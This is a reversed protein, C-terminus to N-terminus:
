HGLIFPHRLAEAPKMRSQPDWDLCRLIFDFFYFDKPGLAEELAQLKPYNAYEEGMQELFAAKVTGILTSKRTAQALVHEPPIGLLQVMYVFLEDENEAPFLPYGSSLECLLCGLSWMDIAMTYPIGFTIEPARYFRSQIYTYIRDKVFCSSGFDIIKLRSRNAKVLLINEPKLDCHM